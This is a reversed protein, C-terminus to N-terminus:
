YNAAGAVPGAASHARIRLHRETGATGWRKISSPLVPHHTIDPHIHVPLERLERHELIAQDTVLAPDPNRRFRQTLPGIPQAGVILHRQLRGPVTVRDRVQQRRQDPPHHHGVRGLRPRDGLRLHLGVLDVRPDQRLQQGRVEQRRDPQGVLAGTAQAPLHHASSFGLTRWDPL